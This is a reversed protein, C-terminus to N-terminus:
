TTPRYNCINNASLKFDVINHTSIVCWEFFQSLCQTGKLLATGQYGRRGTAKNFTRVVTQSKGKKAIFKKLNLTGLDLRQCYKNNSFAKHRKPTKAGYLAMWWQVRYVQRNHFINRFM